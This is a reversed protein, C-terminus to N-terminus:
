KKELESVGTRKPSMTALGPSVLALLVNLTFNLKYMCFSFHKGRFYSILFLNMKLPLSCYTNCMGIAKPNKSVNPGFILPNTQTHLIGM